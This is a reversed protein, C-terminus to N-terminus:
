GGKLVSVSKSILGCTCGLTDRHIERYGAGETEIALFIIPIDACLFNEKWVLNCKQASCGGFTLYNCQTRKRFALEPSRFRDWCKAEVYCPFLEWQQTSSRAMAQLSTGRQRVDRQVVVILFHWMHMMTCRVCGPCVVALLILSDQVIHASILRTPSYVKKACFKCIM